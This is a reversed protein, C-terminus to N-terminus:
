NSKNLFYFGKFTKIQPKFQFQCGKNVPKGNVRALYGEHTPLWEKFLCPLYDLGEYVDDRISIVDKHDEETVKCIEINEM